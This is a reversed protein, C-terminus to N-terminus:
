FAHRVGVGWISIDNTKVGAGDKWDASTFAGYVTTRKSLAYTAGLGFGDRKNSGGATNDKSTAYGASLVLASSLPVNVGVAYENTKVAGVKKNGYTALLQVMGLDYSANARIYEPNAVGATTGEDQYALGAYIPGGAYKVHFALVEADGNVTEDLAYSVSGSIGGFDPSTYKFGNNPNASYDRGSLMVAYEPAFDSAGFVSHAGAEIDDYSTWMKGVTVEGFGGAFGVFSQRNFSLGGATGTDVTLGAELGFVASLGGGLDETGKFGLRSSSLGGSEVVGTSSTQTVVTGGTDKQSGVWVDAIGYITVSSQASAASAFAGLVALAVLSKKM